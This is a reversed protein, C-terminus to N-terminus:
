CRRNDDIALVRHFPLNPQPTMPQERALELELQLLFTSGQGPVSQVSLSGGM